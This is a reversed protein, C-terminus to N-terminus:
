SLNGITWSLDAPDKVKDSLFTLTDKRSHSITPDFRFNFASFFTVQVNYREPESLWDIYTVYTEVDVFDMQHLDRHKARQGTYETGAEKVHKWLEKSFCKELHTIDTERFMETQIYTYAHTTGRVFEDITIPIKLLPWAKEAIYHAGAAYLRPLHLKNM